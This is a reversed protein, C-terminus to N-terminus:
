IYVSTLVHHHTTISFCYGIRHKKIHRRTNSFEIGAKLKQFWKSGTKWPSKQPPTLDSLRMVSSTGVRRLSCSAFHFQNKDSQTSFQNSSCWNLFRVLVSSILFWCTWFIKIEIMETNFYILLNIDRHKHRMHQRFHAFYSFSSIAMAVFAEMNFM